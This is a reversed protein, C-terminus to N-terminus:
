FYLALSLEYKEEDGEEDENKHSSQIDSATDDFEVGNSSLLQEDFNELNLKQDGTGEVSDDNFGGTFSFFVVHHANRPLIFVVFCLAVLLLM